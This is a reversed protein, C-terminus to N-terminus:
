YNLCPVGGSHTGIRTPTRVRVNDRIIHLSYALPTSMSLLFRNEISYQYCHGAEGLAKVVKEGHKAPSNGTCSAHM